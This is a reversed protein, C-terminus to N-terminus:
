AEHASLRFTYGHRREWAGTLISARSAACIPTTVVANVFRVGRSAVRDIVPTQLIPHGACGLSDDRQDDTILVLFSPREAQAAATRGGLVSALLALALLRKM